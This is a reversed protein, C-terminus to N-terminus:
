HRAPRIKLVGQLKLYPSWSFECPGVLDSYQSRTSLFIGSEVFILNVIESCYYRTKQRFPNQVMIIRRTTYDAARYLLGEIAAFIFKPMSFGFEKQRNLNERWFEIRHLLKERQRKALKPRFVFLIEGKERRIPLLAVKKKYGSANLCTAKGGRHEAVIFSHTFRSGEILAIILSVFHRMLFSNEKYSLIVDGARLDKELFELSQPRRRYQAVLHKTHNQATLFFICSTNQSLYLKALVFLLIIKRRLAYRYGGTFYERTRRQLKRLLKQSKSANVAARNLFGRALWIDFVSLDPTTYYAKPANALRKLDDHLFELEFQLAILRKEIGEGIQRPPRSKTKHVFRRQLSAIAQRQKDNYHNVRVLEEKLVPVKLKM